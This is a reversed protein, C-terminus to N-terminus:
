ADNWRLFHTNQFTEDKTHISPFDQISDTRLRAPPSFGKSLLSTDLLTACECPPNLSEMVWGWRVFTSDEAAEVRRFWIMNREWARVFLLFSPFLLIVVAESLGPAYDDVGFCHGSIHLNGGFGGWTAYELRGFLMSNTMLILSRISLSLLYREKPVFTSSWDM